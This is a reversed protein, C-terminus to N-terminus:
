APLDQGHNEAYSLATQLDDVVERLEEYEPWDGVFAGVVEYARQSAAMLMAHARERQSEATHLCQDGTPEQRDDLAIFHHLYYVEDWIAQCANCWMTVVWADDAQFDQDGGELEDSGCYPCGKGDAHEPLKYTARPAYAFEFPDSFSCKYESHAAAMAPTIEVSM